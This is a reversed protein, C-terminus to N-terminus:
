ALTESVLDLCVEHGTGSLFHDDNTRRLRGVELLLFLSLREFSGLGVVHTGDKGLVGRQSTRNVIM